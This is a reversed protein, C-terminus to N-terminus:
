IYRYMCIYIYVYINMSAERVKVGSADQFWGLAAMHYEMSRWHKTVWGSAWPTSWRRYERSGDFFLVNAAADKSTSTSSMCRIEHVFKMQDNSRQIIRQSLSAGENVNVNVVVRFVYWGSPADRYRKSLEELKTFREASETGNGAAEMLRKREGLGTRAQETRLSRRQAKCSWLDKSRHNGRWIQMHPAFGAASSCAPQFHSGQVNSMNSFSSNSTKKHTHTHQYIKPGIHSNLLIYIYM